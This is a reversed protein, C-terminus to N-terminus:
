IGDPLRIAVLETDDFKKRVADTLKQDEFAISQEGLPVVYMITKPPLRTDSVSIPFYVDDVLGYGAYPDVNYNRAHGTKPSLVLADPHLRKIKDFELLKMPLTELETGTLVGVVAKNAAQSWLSETERDYMLLNSEYLLGSVSFSLIEGNITRDFVIASGCLPCFTVAFHTDGISDNVIEHWVLINYPYFRKEGEFQVLVGLTKDGVDAQSISIFEPNDIAPIGDKGPGGSLILSTDITSKSTDTQLGFKAFKTEASEQAHPTKELRPPLNRIWLLYVALAILLLFLILPVKLSM